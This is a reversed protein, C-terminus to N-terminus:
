AEGCAPRQADEGRIRGRLLELVPIRSGNETLAAHWCRRLQERRWPLLLMTLLRREVHLHSM